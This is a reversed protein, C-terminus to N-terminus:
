LSKHITFLINLINKRYEQMAQHSATNAQELTDWMNELHRRCRLLYDALHENYRNQSGMINQTGREQCSDESHLNNLLWKLQCSANQRDKKTQKAYGKLVICAAAYLRGLSAIDTIRHPYLDQISAVDKELDQVDDPVTFRREIRIANTEDKIIHGGNDAIAWAYSFM